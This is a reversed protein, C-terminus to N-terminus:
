AKNGRAFFVVVFGGCFGIQQFLLYGVFCGFAYWQVGGIVGIVVLIAHGGYGIAVALSLDSKIHRVVILAPHIRCLSEIVHAVQDNFIIEKIPIARTIVKGPWQMRGVSGIENKIALVLNDLYVGFM